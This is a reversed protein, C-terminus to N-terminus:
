HLLDIDYTTRATQQYVLTLGSKDWRYKQTVIVLTVLDKAANSNAGTYVKKGKGDEAWIDELNLYTIGNADQDVPPESLNSPMRSGEIPFEVERLKDGPELQYVDFYDYHASGEGETTWFYEPIGDNNVDAIWLSHMNVFSGDSTTTTVIVRGKRTFGSVFEKQGRPLSKSLLSVFNRVQAHTARHPTIPQARGSDASWLGILAAIVVAIERTLDKHWM